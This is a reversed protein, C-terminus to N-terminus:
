VRVKGQRVLRHIIQLIKMQLRKQVEAKSSEYAPKAFPIVPMRGRYARHKTWREKTGRELLHAHAGLPWSPGYVGVVYGKGYRRVRSTISRRLDGTRKHGRLASRMAQKIPTGATRMAESMTRRELKPPLQRLAREIEKWGTIRLKLEPAVLSM